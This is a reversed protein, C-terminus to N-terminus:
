TKKVRFFYAGVLVITIIIWFFFKNLLSIKVDRVLKFYSTRFNSCTISMNRKAFVEPLEGKALNNKPFRKRNFGVRIHGNHRSIHYDYVQNKFCPTRTSFAVIGRIKVDYFINTDILIDNEIEEKSSFLKRFWGGSQELGFVEEKTALRWNNYRYEKHTNVYSLYREDVYDVKKTNILWMLDGKKYFNISPKGELLLTGKNHILVIILFILIMIGVIYHFGNRKM